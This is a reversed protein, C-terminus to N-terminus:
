AASARARYDELVDIGCFERLLGSLADPFPTGELPISSRSKLGQGWLQFRLNEHCADLLLAGSLRPFFGLMASFFRPEFLEFGLRMATVELPLDASIMRFPAGYPLAGEQIERVRFFIRGAKISDFESIFHYQFPEARAQDEEDEPEQSLVRGAAFLLEQGRPLFAAPTGALLIQEAERGKVNELRDRGLLGWSNVAGLIRRLLERLEAAPLSASLDYRGAYGWPFLLRRIDLSSQVAM